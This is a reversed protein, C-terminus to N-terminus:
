MSEIFIQNVLIAASNECPSFINILSLYNANKRLDKNSLSMRIREIYDLEQYSKNIVCTLLGWNSLKSAVNYSEDLWTKPIVVDSDIFAIIAGKAKKAGANRACSRGQNFENILITKEKFRRNILKVTNDTSNNDVVIIEFRLKSLNAQNLIADVCSEITKQSNYAPIVFSIDVNKDTSTLLM